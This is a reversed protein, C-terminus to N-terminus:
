DGGDGDSDVFGFVDDQLGESNESSFLGPFNILVISISAAFGILIVPILCLFEKDGTLQAFIPKLGFLFSIAAFMYLMTRMASQM